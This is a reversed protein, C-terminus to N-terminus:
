RGRHRRQAPETRRHVTGSTVCVGCSCEFNTKKVGPHQITATAASRGLFSAIPFFSGYAATCTSPIRRRVAVTLPPPLVGFHPSPRPSHRTHLRLLAILATSIMTSSSSIPEFSSKIPDAVTSTPPSASPDHVRSSCRCSCFPFPLVAPVTWTRNCLQSGLTSSSGSSGGIRSNLHVTNWASLRGRISM